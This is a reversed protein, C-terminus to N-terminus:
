FGDILSPEFCQVLSYKSSSQVKRMIVDSFYFEPTLFVTLGSECFSKLEKPAALMQNPLVEPLQYGMIAVTANRNPQYLQAIAKWPDLNEDSTSNQPTRAASTSSRCYLLPEDINPTRNATQEKQKAKRANEENILNVTALFISEASPATKLWCDLLLRDASNQIM